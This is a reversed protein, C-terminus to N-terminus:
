LKSGTAARASMLAEVYEPIDAISGVRPVDELGAAEFDSLTAEGTLVSLHQMGAARAALVDVTHDGVYLCQAPQLGELAQEAAVFPDALSVTVFTATLDARQSSAAM